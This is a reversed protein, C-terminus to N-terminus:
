AAERLGAHYVRGDRVLAGSKILVTLANSVAMEGSKDGKVGFLELLDGRSMGAVSGRVANLIAERRSGRRVRPVAGNKAPTKGTKAAEYADIAAFERDLAALEDDISQRSGILFARKASLRERESAIYDAFNETDSM